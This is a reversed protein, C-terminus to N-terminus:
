LISDEIDGVTGGVETIVVDYKKRPNVAKIRRKIEDTIHPIVQIIDGLYDGKRERDLVEWFVRGSSTTNIRSLSVDIFREYHGM